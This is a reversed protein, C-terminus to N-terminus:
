KGGVGEHLVASILLSTYGLSKLKFVEYINLELCWSSRLLRWPENLSNPSVIAEDLCIMLVPHPLVIIWFRAFYMNHLHIKEFVM